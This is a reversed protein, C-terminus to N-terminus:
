LQHRIAMAAVVSHDEATLACVEREGDAWQTALKKIREIADEHSVDGALLDVALETCLRHLIAANEAVDNRAALSITQM